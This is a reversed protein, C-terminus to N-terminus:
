NVLTAPAHLMTATRRGPGNNSALPPPLSPYTALWGGRTASWGFGTDKNGRGQVLVFKAGEGPFREERLGGKWGRNRREANDLRAAM